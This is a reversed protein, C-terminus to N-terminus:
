EVAEEGFRSLMFLRLKDLQYKGGKEEDYGESNKQFAVNTIHGESDVLVYM